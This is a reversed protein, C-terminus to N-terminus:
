LHIASLYLPSVWLGNIEGGKFQFNTMEPRPFIEYKESPYVRSKLEYKHDKSWKGYKM